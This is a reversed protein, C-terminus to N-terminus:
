SRKTQLMRHQTGSGKGSYGMGPAAYRGPWHITYSTSSLRYATGLSYAALAETMWSRENGKPDRRIKPIGRIEQVYVWWRWWCSIAESAHGVGQRSSRAIKQIEWPSGVQVEIHVWRHAGHCRRHLAAHISRRQHSNGPSRMHRLVRAATAWHCPFNYVSCLAELDIEVQHMEQLPVKRDDDSCLNRVEALDGFGECGHTGPPLAM